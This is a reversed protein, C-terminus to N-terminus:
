AEYQGKMRCIGHEVAVKGGLILLEMSFDRGLAMLDADSGPGICGKQPYLGIRRAPNETVAAWLIFAGVLILLGRGLRKWNQYDPKGAPM